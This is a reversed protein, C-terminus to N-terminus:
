IGLDGHLLQLIALVSTSATEARLIRKGLAIGQMKAALCAEVEETTFGGEPGILVALHNTRVTVQSLDQTSEPALLLYTTSDSLESLYQDLTQPAYIKPLRTRGSQECASITVAQWHQLKKEIKEKDTRVVSRQTILPQFASMGLEVAKQLAFDMKDPKVLAQVLTLALSSERESPDFSQILVTASRKNIETLNALYEGGEGNFLLLSEGVQLRLVQIAHRFVEEPLTLSQEVTLLCPCYFRPIRM